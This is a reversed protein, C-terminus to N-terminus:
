GCGDKKMTRYVMMMMPMMVKIMRRLSVVFGMVEKVVMTKTTEVDDGLPLCM